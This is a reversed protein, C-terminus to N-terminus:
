KLKEKYIILNIKNGTFLNNKAMYGM